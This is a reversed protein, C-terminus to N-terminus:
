YKPRHYVFAGGWIEFIDKTVVFYNQKKSSFIKKESKIIYIM